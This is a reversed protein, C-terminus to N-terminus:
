YTQKQGYIEINVPHTSFWRANVQEEFPSAPLKWYNDKNDFVLVLKIRYPFVGKEISTLRFVSPKFNHVTMFDFGIKNEIDAFFNTKEFERHGLKIKCGGM